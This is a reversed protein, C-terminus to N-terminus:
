VGPRGALAKDLFKLIRSRYFEDEPGSGDGKLICHGAGKEVWLEANRGSANYLEYVHKLATQGDKTGHALLIPRPPIKAIDYLPSAKSPIVRFKAMYALKMFPMFIRILPDSAGMMKMYDASMEEISAYSSISVVADIDTRAAAARIATAGGMSLGIVAVPLSRCEARGKIWDLVAGVDGPERYAFSISSGGSRGHARMDLAISSYGADYLFKCHGLMSSADMGDMGHLVIVTGKSASCPIYWAKLPTGDSSAISISEGHLGMKGPVTELKEVRHDSMQCVFYYSVGYLGILSLILIIALGTHLIRPLKRRRPRVDRGAEIYM